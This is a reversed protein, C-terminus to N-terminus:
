ILLFRSSYAGLLTDTHNHVVLALAGPDLHQAWIGSVRLIETGEEPHLRVLSLAAAPQLGQTSCMVAMLALGINSNSKKTEMIGEINNEAEGVSVKLKLKTQM